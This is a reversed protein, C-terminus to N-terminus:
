GDGFEVVFEEVLGFLLSEGGFGQTDVYLFEAEEGLFDVIPLAEDVSVLFTLSDSDPVSILLNGDIVQCEEALVAKLFL